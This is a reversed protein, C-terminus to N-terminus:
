RKLKVEFADPNEKRSVGHTYWYHTNCRECRHGGSTNGVVLARKRSGCNWCYPMRFYYLYLCYCVGAIVIIALGRGIWISILDVWSLAFYFGSSIINSM